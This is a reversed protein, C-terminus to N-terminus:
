GVNRFVDNTFVCGAKEYKEGLLIVVLPTYHVKPRTMELGNAFKILKIVSTKVDTLTGLWM